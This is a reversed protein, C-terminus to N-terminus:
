PNADKACRFGSYSDSYSPVYKERNAVYDGSWHINGRLVKFQGSNPGLPNNSIAQAYYNKMYWDATWESVFSMM